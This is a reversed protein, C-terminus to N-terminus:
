VASRWTRVGYCLGGRHRGGVDRGGKRFLRNNGDVLGLSVGAIPGLWMAIIMAGIVVAPSNEFLGYCCVVAALANMTVYAVDFESNLDIDARVAARSGLAQSKTM